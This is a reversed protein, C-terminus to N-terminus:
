KQLTRIYAVLAKTQDDTIGKTGFAHAAKKEVGGNLIMDVMQDDPMEKAEDTLMNTGEHCLTRRGQRQSLERM